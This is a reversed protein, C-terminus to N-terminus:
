EPVYALFTGGRAIVRRWAAEDFVVQEEYTSVFADPAERLAQLRIDRLVQWEGSDDRAGLGHGTSGGEGNSANLYGNIAIAVLVLTTANARGFANECSSTTDDNSIM